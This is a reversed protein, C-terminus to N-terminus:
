QEMPIQQKHRVLLIWMNYAVYIWTNAVDYQGSRVGQWTVKDNNICYMYLLQM